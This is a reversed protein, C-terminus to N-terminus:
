AINERPPVGLTEVAEVVQAWGFQLVHQAITKEMTTRDAGGLYSLISNALASADGAPVIYGTQGPVVSDPLSDVNSVVVPRHYSYALKVVGSGTASLYPLVVLDSALFYTAVSLQPIYEGRLKVQEDIGLRTIQQTYIRPDGWIEGAIVLTCKREALVSAMAELLVNLGKYPRIFGFFLIVDGKLGLKERATERSDQALESVQYRPHEVQVIRGRKRISGLELKDQASQVIFGDGLRLTLRTLFRSLSSSEHSVVNHCLFIIQSSKLRWKIAHIMCIFSPAWYMVWWPFIVMDPNFRCIESVAKQWTLPNLSDIIQHGVDEKPENHTLDRDGRGPYLWDPYQRKFSVFFVQHEESLSRYLMSTYQAIGGKFTLSPGVLAIKM